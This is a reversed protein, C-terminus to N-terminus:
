FRQVKLIVLHKDNEYRASFKERNAGTRGLNSVGSFDQKAQQQYVLLVYRHLGTGRPPGSGIYASKIEGESIKNGPVNVVLWHHWERYTPNERSPADPDTM